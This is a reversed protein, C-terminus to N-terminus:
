NIGGVFNDYVVSFVRLIENKLTQWLKKLLEKKGDKVVLHFM